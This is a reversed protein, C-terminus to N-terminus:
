CRSSTSAPHWPADARTARADAALCIGYVPRSSSLPGLYDHAVMHCWAPLDLPPAPGTALVHVVTGSPPDEVQKRLRLLLTACLLGTRRRHPRSPTDPRRAKVALVTLRVTVCM